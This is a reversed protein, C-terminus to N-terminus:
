KQEEGLGVEWVQLFAYPNIAERMPSWRSERVYVTFHLHPAFQGTTGEPGYGSDGVYGIIQGKKVKVGDEIGEAYRELHAYYYSIQPHAEDQIRLRWGGLENWGKSVVEGDSVSRIPTGKAAFMDTGEHVRDGGYTRSDGWTDGYDVNQEADFPFRYDETLPSAAWRYSQALAIVEGAESESLLARVAQEADDDSLEEKGVADRMEEALALIQQRDVGKYENLIEHQAALYPWPVKMESEVEAYVTALEGPVMMEPVETGQNMDYVWYVAVGIAGILGLLLLLQFIRRLM